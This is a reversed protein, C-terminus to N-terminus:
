VILGESIPNDTNISGDEEKWHRTSYPLSGWIPMFFLDRRPTGTLRSGIEFIKTIRHAGPWQELEQDNRFSGANNWFAYNDNHSPCESPRPLCYYM